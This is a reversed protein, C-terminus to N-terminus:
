EYRKWNPQVPCNCDMVAQEYGYRYGRNYLDILPKVMSADFPRPKPAPKVKLVPPSACGAIMLIAIVGLCKAM